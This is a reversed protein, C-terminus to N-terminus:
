SDFTDMLLAIFNEIRHQITNLSLPALVRTKNKRNLPYLLESVNIHVHTMPHRHEEGIAINVFAAVSPLVSHPQGFYKGRFM